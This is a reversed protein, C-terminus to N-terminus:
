RGVMEADAFVQTKGSDDSEMKWHWTNQNPNFTFTTHFLSTGSFKFLLAITGPKFKAHAIIGNSLGSNSTKDLWLCDYQMTQNNYCLLVMADYQPRGDPGQEDSTENLQLYQNGLVWRAPIHHQINKGAVVGKLLWKGTLRNLLTDAPTPQQALAFIPAISLALAASIKLLKM